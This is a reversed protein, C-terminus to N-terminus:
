IVGGIWHVIIHIIELGGLVCLAIRQRKFAKELAKQKEPIVVSRTASFSNCPMKSGKKVGDCSSDWYHVCDNCDVDEWDEFRSKKTTDSM